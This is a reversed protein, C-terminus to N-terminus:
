GDGDVFVPESLRVLNSTCQYRKVDSLLPLSPPSHFANFLSLILIFSNLTGATVSVVYGVLCKKEMVALLMSTFLELSQQFTKLDM